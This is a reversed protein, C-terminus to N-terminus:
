FTIPPFTIPQTNVSFDDSIMGWSQRSFIYIAISRFTNENRKSILIESKRPEVKVRGLVVVLVPLTQGM